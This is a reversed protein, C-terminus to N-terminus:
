WVQQVSPTMQRPTVRPDVVCIQLWAWYAVLLWYTTAYHTKLANVTLRKSGHTMAFPNALIGNIHLFYKMQFLLFQLITVKTWTVKLRCCNEWFFVPCTYAHVHMTIRSLSIYQYPVRALIVTPSFHWFNFTSLTLASMVWVICENSQTLQYKQIFYFWIFCCM